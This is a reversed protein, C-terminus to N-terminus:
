TRNSDVRQGYNDFPAGSLAGFRGAHLAFRGVDVEADFGLQEFLDGSPAGLLSHKWAARCRDDVHDLVIQRM